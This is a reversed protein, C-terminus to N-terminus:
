GQSVSTTLIVKTTDYLMITSHVTTHRVLAYFQRNLEVQQEATYDGPTMVGEPAFFSQLLPGTVEMAEVVPPWHHSCRDAQPLVRLSRKFHCSHGIPSDSAGVADRLDIVHRHHTTCM